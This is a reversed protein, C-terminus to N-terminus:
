PQAYLSPMLNGTYKARLIATQGSEWFDWGFKERHFFPGTHGGWFGESTLTSCLARGWKISWPINTKPGGFVGEAGGGLGCPPHGEPLYPRQDEANPIFSAGCHANGGQNGNADHCPGAASNFTGPYAADWTTTQMRQNGWLARAFMCHDKKVQRDESTYGVLARVHNLAIRHWEDVETRTPNTNDAFPRHRYFVERLGRITDGSPRNPNSPNPCIAQALELRTMDSPNYVRGDWRAAEWRSQPIWGISDPDHGTISAVAAPGEYFASWDAQCPTYQDPNNQCGGNGGGENNGAQRRCRRRQNNSLGECRCDKYSSGELHACSEHSGGNGGGGGSNSGGNNSGVERRCQRKPGGRLGECRCGKYRGRSLHACEAHSVPPAENGALLQMSVDQQNAEVAKLNLGQFLTMEEATDCSEATLACPASWVQRGVVFSFIMRSM